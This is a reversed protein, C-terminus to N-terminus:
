KLDLYYRQETETLKELGLLEFVYEYIASYCGFHNIRLYKMTETLLDSRHDTIYKIVYRYEITLSDYLLTRSEKPFVGTKIQLNYERTRYKKLLDEIMSVSIDKTLIDQIKLRNNVIKMYARTQFPLFGFAYYYPNFGELQRSLELKITNHGLTKSSVDQLEVTRISLRASHEKLFKLIIRIFKRGATLPNSEQDTCKYNTSINTIEAIHSGRIIKVSVCSRFRSEQSPALLYINAVSEGEEVLEYKSIKIKYDKDADELIAFYDVVGGTQNSSIGKHDFDQHQNTIHKLKCEKNNHVTIPLIYKDYWHRFETHSDTLKFVQKMLALNKNYYPINDLIINSDEFHFFGPKTNEIEQFTIKIDDNHKSM